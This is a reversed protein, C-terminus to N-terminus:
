LNCNLIRTRGSEIRPNPNYHVDMFCAYVTSPFFMALAIFYRWLLCPPPHGKERGRRETEVCAVAIFEPPLSSPESFKLFGCPQSTEVSAISPSAHQSIPNLASCCFRVVSKLHNSDNIGAAFGTLLLFPFQAYAAEQWGELSRGSQKVQSVLM